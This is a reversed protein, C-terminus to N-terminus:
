EPNQKRDKNLIRELLTGISPEQHQSNQLLEKVDCRIESLMDNVSKFRDDDAKEHATMQMKLAAYGAISAGIVLVVGWVPIQGDISLGTQLLALIM